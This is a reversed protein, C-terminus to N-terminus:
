PGNNYTLQDTGFASRCAGCQCPHNVSWTDTGVPNGTQECRAVMEAGLPTYERFLHRANAEFEEVTVPTRHDGSDM